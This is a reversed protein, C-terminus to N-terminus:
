SQIQDLEDEYMAYEEYDERHAGDDKSEALNQVKLSQNLDRAIRVGRLAAIILKTDNHDVEQEIFNM